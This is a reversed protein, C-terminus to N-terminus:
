SGPDSSVETMFLSVKGEDRCLSLFQVLTLRELEANRGQELIDPDVPDLKGQVKGSACFFCPGFSTKWFCRRCHLFAQPGEM